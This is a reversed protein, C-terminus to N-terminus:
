SILKSVPLEVNPIAFPAVREEMTLEQLSRYGFQFPQKRDPAPDRRVELIRNVLNVIWYDQVGAQAYLSAKRGRDFELTTDSVEVVLLASSPHDNYDDRSGIVVSIDPEPESTVGCNLPLQMRVWHSPELTNRLVETVKDVAYAHAFRQPNLIVIEGGILETRDGHLLGLESMRYFDARTWLKTSPDTTQITSQITSM